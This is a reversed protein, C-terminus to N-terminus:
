ERRLADIPDTQEAHKAPYYVVALGVVVMFLISALILWIPTAFLSFNGSVGRHHALANMVINILKGGAVAFVIGIIAGAVSLLIAEFLFLKRMDIRRGGLAMMLGIEKTRELLSITLTNFMGLIAVVMGIAGFGALIFNFFKFIQNIQAVTDIPSNTVFGFSEIQARLPDVSSSTDALLKVQSYNPVGAADFNSSPIYVEGGGEDQVVGVLRYDSVSQPTRAGSNALSVSIKIKQGIVKGYDKVGMSDLVAQDILAEKSNNFDLAHGKSINLSSEDQYTRDIGYAIGDVTSGQYNLKGPFSYSLGVRQVHPLNRIRSVSESNLKILKPNQSTVDISKVSTNGVVQNTVLKQLGLGFSLLFFIAGIGIVVGFITLAARLRKYILNRWAIYFMTTIPVSAYTRESSKGLKM